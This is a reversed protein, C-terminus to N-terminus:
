YVRALTSYMLLEPKMDMIYVPLKIVDDGLPDKVEGTTKLLPVDKEQIGLEEKLTQLFYPRGPRDPSDGIIVRSGNSLAEVTRYALAMGTDPEYNVDAAVVVDATPLPHEKPDGCLDLLQTDLNLNHFHSAAYEAMQLPFAEFDTATVVSAGKIAAAISVLGAGAGLEVLSSSSLDLDTADELLYKAVASSSPWLSVGYADGEKLKQSNDDDENNLGLGLAYSMAMQDLEEQTEETAELITVPGINPLHLTRKQCPLDDVMHVKSADEDDDDHDEHLLGEGGSINNEAPIASLFSGRKFRLVNNGEHPCPFSPFTVAVWAAVSWSASLVCLLLFFFLIPTSTSFFLLAM